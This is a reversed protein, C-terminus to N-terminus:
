ADQVTWFKHMMLTVPVLFLVLLRGGLKAHYGLLISRGGAIASLLVLISTLPVGRSVAYGITQNNCPM